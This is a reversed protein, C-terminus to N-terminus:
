RIVRRATIYDKRDYPSIKIVDGTRPSHIYMGNGIYIGMHSPIGGKGYFILDGPQLQDRSIGIGNYIQNKTTRGIYIGFHKYVYQTFGSCDFGTPTTGGWLYPTGLFKSAYAIVTDGSVETAGRSLRPTTVTSHTDKKIKTEIKELNKNNESQVVEVSTAILRDHRELEQILKKQIEKNNKLKNLKKNNENNLTVLANNKNNLKDKKKNLNQEEQKLEKFIKKDLKTIKKVVQIKQFLDSLDKAGLIVDLYGVTGKMYMTRIRKNYLEQKSKINEEAQNLDRETSKIEKQVRMSEKKNDEIKTMIEEIQMDLSEIKQEIEFRKDERQQSTPQAFVPKYVSVVVMFALVLYTSVKKILQFEKM